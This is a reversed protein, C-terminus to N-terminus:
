DTERTFFPKFKKTKTMKLPFVLWFFFLNLWQPLLSIDKSRGCGEQAERGGFVFTGDEGDESDQYTRPEFSPEKLM